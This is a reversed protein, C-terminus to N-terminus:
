IIRNEYIKYSSKDDREYKRLFYFILLGVFLSAVFMIPFPIKWFKVCIAALMIVILFGNTLSVFLEFIISVWKGFFWFDGFGVHHYIVKEIEDVENM